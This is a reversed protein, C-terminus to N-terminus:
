QPKGFVLVWKGQLSGPSHAVAAGLETFLPNMMNACHGPSQLWEDMVLEIKDVPVAAINEGLTLFRYGFSQVRDSVSGGEPSTHAFYRRRTMDEAHFRAAQSLQESWSLASTAAFVDDGCTRAQM